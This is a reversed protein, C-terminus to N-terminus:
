NHRESIAWRDANHNDGGYNELEAEGIMVSYFPTKSPTFGYGSGGSSGFLSLRGDSLSYYDSKKEVVAGDEYHITTVISSWFGGKDEIHIKTIKKM